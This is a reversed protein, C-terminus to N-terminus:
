FSNGHTPPRGRPKQVPPEQKEYVGASNKKHEFLLQAMGPLSGQAKILLEARLKKDQYIRELGTTKLEAQLQALQTQVFNHLQPQTVFIQGAKYKKHKVKEIRTKIMGNVNEVVNIDPTYSSIPLSIIPLPPIDTETKDWRTRDFDEDNPDLDELNHNVEDIYDSTRGSLHASHRDWILYIRKYGKEEIFQRHDKLNFIFADLDEVISESNVNDATQSWSLLGRPSVFLSLNVKVKDRPNISCHCYADAGIKSIHNHKTMHNPQIGTEDQFIPWGEEDDFAEILKGSFDVRDQNVEPDNVPRASNLPRKLSYGAALILVYLYSDSYDWKLQVKLELFTPNFILKKELYYYVRQLENMEHEQLLIGNADYIDVPSYNSQAPIPLQDPNHPPPPNKELLDDDNPADGDAIQIFVHQHPISPRVAELKDDDDDSMFDDQDSSKLDESIEDMKADMEELDDGSLNDSESNFVVRNIDNDIDDLAQDFPNNSQEQDNLDCMEDEQGMNADKGVLQKTYDDPDFTDKITYYSKPQNLFSCIPTTRVDANPILHVRQLDSWRRSIQREQISTFLQITTTSHGLVKLSWILYSEFLYRQSPTIKLKHLEIKWFRDVRNMENLDLTTKAIKERHRYQSPHKIDYFDHTPM